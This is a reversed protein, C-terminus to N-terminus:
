VKHRTKLEQVVEQLGLGRSLLLVDLHYILDAAEEILRAREGNEAELLVEAAEEGVKKAIRKPGAQFLRATYSTEPDANQRSRLLTELKVLFGMDLTPITVDGGEKEPSVFCSRSGTHCAPGSPIVGILLADSDCDASISQLQLLNGSTEGKTWLRNKSRSFFTVHGTDLTKNLAEANMWAQMIVEKTNIDQVIAPVLGNSKSFDIQSPNLTKNM